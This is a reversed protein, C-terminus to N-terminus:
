ARVEELAGELNLFNELTELIPVYVYTDKITKLVRKNGTGRWEM